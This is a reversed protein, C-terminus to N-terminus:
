VGVPFKSEAASLLKEKEAIDWRLSAAVPNVVRALGTAKWSRESEALSRKLITIQLKVAESDLGHRVSETMRPKEMEAEVGALIDSERQTLPKNSM